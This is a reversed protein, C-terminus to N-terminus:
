GSRSAEASRSRSARLRDVVRLVEAVDVETRLPARAPDFRPLPDPMGGPVVHRFPRARALNAFTPRFVPGLEVVDTAPRSFVLNCLGAGHEGVVLEANYFLRAQELPPLGELVVSRFANGFRAFLADALEGHNALRRRARGTSGAPHDPFALPEHGRDVLLVRPADLDLLRNRSEVEDLFDHLDRFDYPGTGFGSLVRQPVDTLAALNAPSLHAVDLGLIPEVFAAFHGTSQDPTDALLVRRLGPHERRRLRALPLLFDLVFHGYHWLFGGRRHSVLRLSPKM